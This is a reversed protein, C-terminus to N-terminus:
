VAYALLGSAMLVGSLRFRRFALAIGAVIPVALFTGLLMVVELPGKLGDSLHNIWHSVTREVTSINELRFVSLAAAVALGGVVIFADRPHRKYGGTLRSSKAGVITDTM